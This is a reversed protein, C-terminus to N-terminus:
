CGFCVMRIGSILWSLMHMQWPFHGVFSKKKKKKGSIFIHSTGPICFLNSCDDDHMEKQLRTHQSQRHLFTGSSFSATWLQYTDNDATLYSTDAINWVSKPYMQVYSCAHTPGHGRPHTPETQEANETYVHRSQTHKHLFVFATGCSSMEEGDKIVQRILSMSPSPLNERSLLHENIEGDWTIKVSTPGSRLFSILSFTYVM